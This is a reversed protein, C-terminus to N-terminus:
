TANMSATWKIVAVVVRNCIQNIVCYGYIMVNMEVTAANSEELLFTRLWM